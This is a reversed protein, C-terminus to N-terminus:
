TNSVLTLLMYPLESHPSYRSWSSQIAAIFSNFPPHQRFLPAAYCGNVTVCQRCSYLYFTFFIYWDQLDLSLVKYEFFSCRKDAICTM